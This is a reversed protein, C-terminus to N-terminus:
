LDNLDFTFDKMEKIIHYLLIGLAVFGTAFCGTLIGLLYVVWTSIETM